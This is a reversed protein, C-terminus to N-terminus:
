EAGETDGAPRHAMWVVIDAVRLLSLHGAGSAQRIEGLRAVIDRDAALTQWWPRWWPDAAQGLAKEVVTDRIPMLAMRKRALLKYVAVRPISAENRLLWYLQDGPSGPGLWREFESETLIHLDRDAPVGGLLETIRSSLSDLTRISSPRLSSTSKERIQISLMSLAILDDSTIRVPDNHGYTDFAAGTYGGAGYTRVLGAAREVADPGTDDLGLEGRLRQGFMGEPGASDEAMGWGKEVTERCYAPDMRPSDGKGYRVDSSTRDPMCLNIACCMECRGSVLQRPGGFRDARILLGHWISSLARPRMMAVLSISTSPDLQPQEWVNEVHSGTEM